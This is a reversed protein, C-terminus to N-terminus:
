ASPAEGTQRWRLLLTQVYIAVPFLVVADYLQLNLVPASDMFFGSLISDLNTLSLAPFGFRNM